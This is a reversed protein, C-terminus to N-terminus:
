VYFSTFVGLFCFFDGPTSREVGGARRTQRQPGNKRRLCRTCGHPAPKARHQPRAPDSPARCCGTNLLYVSVPMTTFIWNSMMVVVSCYLKIPVSCCCHFFFVDAPCTYQCFVSSGTTVRVGMVWWHVLLLPNAMWAGM